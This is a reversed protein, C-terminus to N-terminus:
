ILRGKGFSSLATKKTNDWLFPVAFSRQNESIFPISSQWRLRGSLGDNASRILHLSRM